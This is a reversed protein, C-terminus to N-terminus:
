LGAQACKSDGSTPYRLEEVMRAASYIRVQCTEQNVYSWHCCQDSLESCLHQKFAELACYIYGTSGAFLECYVRM